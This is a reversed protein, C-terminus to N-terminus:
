LRITDTYGPIAKSEIGGLETEGPKCKYNSPQKMGFQMEFPSIHQITKPLRVEYAEQRSFTNNNKAFLIQQKAM